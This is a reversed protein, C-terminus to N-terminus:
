KVYSAKINHELSGSVGYDEAENPPNADRRNFLLQLFRDVSRYKCGMTLLM